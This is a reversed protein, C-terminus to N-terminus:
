HNGTLVMLVDSLFLVIGITACLTAIALIVDTIFNEIMYRWLRM